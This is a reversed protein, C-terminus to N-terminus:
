VGLHRGLFAAVETTCAAILGVDDYFDIQGTSTTWFVETPVALHSIFERALAPALANDSHVILTPVHISAAAGLADFPITYARSQMAFANVYGAAAGGRATGYYEFAEKLPMAVNGGDRGVAPITAVVGTRRWVEEAAEAQAIEAAAAAIAAASPHAYYGAIGAFVKILPEDAVARAMYGAGACIGVAAVPRGSFRADANLRAVAARIDQVKANPNEFQRPEGGSAGFTRHDFALAAFGQAAMAKAYAGTAQTRVSTLPGTTVIVGRIPPPPMYLDGVLRVAECEFEFPEARIPVNETSSM